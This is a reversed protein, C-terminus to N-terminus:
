GSGWDLGLRGESATYARLRGVVEEVTRAEVMIEGNKEAVFGERISRRVWELLGDWYGGVNFVVIAREHIGLQNWTVMEMLEELTGYGGALAVFGSGAGGKMVAEAMRRKRDHMDRVVTTRGYIKEDIGHGPTSSSTSKQGPRGAQEYAMLAEPIIGHVSEPGSLAVLTRALEGM